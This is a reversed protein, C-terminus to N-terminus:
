HEKAFDALVFLRTRRARELAGQLDNEWTVM